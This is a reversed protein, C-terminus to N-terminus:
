REGCSERSKRPRVEPSRSINVPVRERVSAAPVAVENSVAFSVAEPPKEALTADVKVFVPCCGVLVPIGHFFKQEYQERHHGDRRRKPRSVLDPRGIRLFQGCRCAFEDRGM